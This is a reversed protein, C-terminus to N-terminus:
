TNNENSKTIPELMTEVKEMFCGISIMTKRDQTRLEKESVEWIEKLQQVKDCRFYHETNGEQESCLPCIGERKKGKFNGPISNMHVRYRLVKKVDQLTERQLYEKMKYIDDKVTRSKKKTACIDRIEKETINTIREKVHKKWSSKVTEKPDKKIGYKQILVKISGFWTTTRNETEQVRMLKKILRKEDSRVINHYLMLKKYALRASMAWWGTEMLLSYYPSTKHVELIGTLIDKQMREVEMIEKDTYYPFAEANYLLSPIVVTEALKLRAAVTFRGINKPHAERRTSTTSIM